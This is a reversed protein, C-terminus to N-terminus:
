HEGQTEDHDEIMINFLGSIKTLRILNLRGLKRSKLEAIQQDVEELVKEHNPDDPEAVPKDDDMSDKRSISEMFHLAQENTIPTFTKM